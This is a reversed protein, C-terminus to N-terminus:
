ASTALELPLRVPRIGLATFIRQAHELRCLGKTFLAKASSEPVGAKSPIEVLSVGRQRAVLTVGRAVEACTEFSRFVVPPMLNLGGFSYANDPDPQRELKAVLRCLEESSQVQIMLGERM